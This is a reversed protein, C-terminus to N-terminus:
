TQFHSLHDLSQSLKETAHNKYLEHLVLEITLSTLYNIHSEMLFTLLIQYKDFINLLVIEQLFRNNLLFSQDLWQNISDRLFDLDSSCVDSSWDRKSRTHRRR